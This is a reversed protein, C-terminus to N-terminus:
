VPDKFAPAQGTFNATIAELQNPTGMITMMLESEMMFGRASDGHWVGNLLKKAARVADPNKSAIEKALAMADDYPKECVRTVLKLRAAEEGKIVKGTFILEKAVDISVLDRITQTVSMDPILGWRMEMVSFKADPTCFRIDAGMAIQFGGGMAVGHIAAIVPMPLEKWGYAIHQFINTIRDEYRERLDPLKNEGSQLAAFNEVDLGACFGKGEGSLVVVRVGPEKALRGIADAIANIMDFSLANYKDPRNFRVDAIHNEVSISVLDSM